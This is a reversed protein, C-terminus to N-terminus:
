AQAVEVVKTRLGGFATTKFDLGVNDIWKEQSVKKYRFEEDIVTGIPANQYDELSELIEGVKPPLYTIVDGGPATYGFGEGGCRWKGDQGKVDDRTDGSFHKIRTGVPLAEAQEKTVKDGVKFTPVPKAVVIREYRAMDWAFNRTAEWGPTNDQWLGNDLKTYGAHDKLIERRVTTGVPASRYDAETILRTGLALGASATPLSRIYRPGSMRPMQSDNKTWGGGDSWLNESRKTWYGQSPYAPARLGDLFVTAGVPLARFEETTAVPDGVKFVKEQKVETVGPLKAIIRTFFLYSPAHVAVDGDQFGEGTRTLANGGNRDTVVTGIPLFSYDKGGIVQGVSFTRNGVSRIMRPNKAMREDTTAYIADLNDPYVWANEAWKICYNDGQPNEATYGTFFVTSGVPLAAYQEVSRITHGPLCEKLAQERKALIGEAQKVAERLAEINASTDITITSNTM